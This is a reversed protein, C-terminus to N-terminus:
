QIVLSISNSSLLFIHLIHLPTFAKHKLYGLSRGPQYSASPDRLIVGEGGKDVVDQFFSELHAMDRCVQRPALELYNWEGENLRQEILLFSYM